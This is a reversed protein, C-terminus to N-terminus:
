AFHSKPGIWIEIDGELSSFGDWWVARTRSALDNRLAFARGVIELHRALSKAPWKGKRRLVGGILKSAVRHRVRLWFTGALHQALAALFPWVDGALAPDHDFGSSRRLWEVTSRVTHTSRVIVFHSPDPGDRAV